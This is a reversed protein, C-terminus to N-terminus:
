NIVEMALQFVTDGVIEGAKAPSYRSPLGRATILNLGLSKAYHTDVGGPFSALDIILASKSVTKLEEFNFIPHPITNFIYNYKKCDNLANLSATKAGYYEAKLIETKNRASITIDKTFPTLYIQLAKAIRGYGCILVSSNILSFDSKEIALAMAGEATLYANKLAFEESKTYDIVNKFNINGAFVPASYISLDEKPNVGFLIFDANDENNVNEFGYSELRKSAYIVRKDSLDPTLFKM